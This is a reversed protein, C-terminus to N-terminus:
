IDESHRNFFMKVPFTCYTDVKVAFVIIFQSLGVMCHPEVSHVLVDSKCWKAPKKGPYEKQWLIISVVCKQDQTTSM